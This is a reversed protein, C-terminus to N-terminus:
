IQVCQIEGKEVLEKYSKKSIDISSYEYKMTDKLYNLCMSLEKYLDKSLKSYNEFKNLLNIYRELYPLIRKNIKGVDHKFRGNVPNILFM